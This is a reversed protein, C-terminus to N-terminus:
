KKAVVYEDVEWGNTVADTLNKFWTVLKNTGKERVKIEGSTPDEYVNATRDQKKLKLNPKESSEIDNGIKKLIM